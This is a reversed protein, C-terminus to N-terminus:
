VGMYRETLSYTWRLYTTTAAGVTVVGAGPSPEMARRNYADLWFSTSLAVWDTAGSVKRWARGKTIKLADGSNLTVAANVLYDGGGLSDHYNMWPNTVSGGVARWEITALGTADGNNAVSYSASPLMVPPAVGLKHLLGDPVILGVRLGIKGRMKPESIRISDLVCDEAVRDSQVVLTYTDRPNFYRLTKQRLGAYDTTPSVADLTITRPNIHMGVVAGGVDAAYDDIYATIDPEGLGSISALGWDSKDFALVSPVDAPSYAGAATLRYIAISM